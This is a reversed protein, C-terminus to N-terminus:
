KPQNLKQNLASTFINEKENSAQEDNMKEALSDAFIIVEQNLLQNQTNKESVEKKLEENQTIKDKNNQEKNPNLASPSYEAVIFESNNLLKLKNSNVVSISNPISKLNGSIPVNYINGNYSVKIDANTLDVNNDLKLESSLGVQLLNAINVNGLQMSAKQHVNVTKIYVKGNEISDPGM